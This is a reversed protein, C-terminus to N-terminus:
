PCLSLFHASVGRYEFGKASGIVALDAIQERQTKSELSQLGVAPLDKKM